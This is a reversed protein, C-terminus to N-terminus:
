YKLMKEWKLWYETFIDNIINSLNHETTDIGHVFYYTFRHDLPHAAFVMAPHNNKTHLIEAVIKSNQVSAINQCTISATVHVM